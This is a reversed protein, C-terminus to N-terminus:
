SGLGARPGGAPRADRHLVDLRDGQRDEPVPDHDVVIRLGRALGTVRDDRPEQFVDGDALSGGMGCGGDRFYESGSTIARIASRESRALRSTSPAILPMCRLGNWPNLM